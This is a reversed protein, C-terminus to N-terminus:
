GMINIVYESQVVKFGYALHLEWTRQGYQSIDLLLYTMGNSDTIPIQKITPNEPILPPRVVGVIASRECAFNPTYDAGVTLADGDGTAVKLGPNGIVIDGAAACGTNVVYKNDADDAYTVYDGAVVTGSGTKLTLTTQGIAEIGDSVYSTGTGNTHLAIGASKRLKFGYQDGFQGSRREADSGAENAKQYINLKQLNNAAATNIVCQLDAMPAGNDALEKQADALLDLSTAFPTTGAIGIARSAGQYAADCLTTEADNRLARMGQKLLQDVWDLRNGANDLSRIQEGTLHWSTKNSDTITVEVASATKDTGSSSTAAPTFASVAAVPAVPVRLTDGKAMGKNDFDMYISDLAGAPEKAVEIAASYARPLINTLTNAM